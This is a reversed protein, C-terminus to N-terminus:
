NSNSYIFILFLSNFLNSQTGVSGFQASIVGALSVCFVIVDMTFMALILRIIAVKAIIKLIKKNKQIQIAMKLTILMMTKMLIIMKMEVVIQIIMM